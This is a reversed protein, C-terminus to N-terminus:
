EGQQEAATSREGECANCTLRGEARRFAGPEGCVTCRFEHGKRDVYAAVRAACEPCVDRRKGTPRGPQWVEIANSGPREIRRDCLDCVTVFSHLENSKSSPDPRFSM